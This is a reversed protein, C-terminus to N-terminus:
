RAGRRIRPIATVAATGLAFLRLALDRSAHNDLVRVDFGAALAQAVTLKGAATRVAPHLAGAHVPRRWKEV